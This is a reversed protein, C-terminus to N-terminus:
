FTQYCLNRSRHKRYRTYLCVPGAKWSLSFNGHDNGGTCSSEMDKHCHDTVLIWHGSHTEELKSWFQQGQCSFQLQNKASLLNMKWKKMTRKSLLAPVSDSELVQVTFFGKVVIVRQSSYFDHAHVAIPVKKQSTNNRQIGQWLYDVM